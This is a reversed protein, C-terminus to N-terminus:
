KNRQKILAVPEGQSSPQSIGLAIRSDRLHTPRVVGSSVCIGISFCHSASNCTRSLFLKPRTIALNGDNRTQTLSCRKDRSSYNEKRSIYISIYIRQM